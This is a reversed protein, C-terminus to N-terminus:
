ERGGEKQQRAEEDALRDTVDELLEEAAATLKFRDSQNEFLRPSLGRFVALMERAFDMQALLLRINCSTMLGSVQASSVFPQETLDLVRGTLKEGDLLSREGFQNLMRAVLADLKDMVTRVVEVCQLDLIIRRLAEQGQSPTVSRLDVGAAAILFEIAEGMRGAGRSALLSRFCQQPTSFGITEDRYLQRLDKMEEPTAARKNVEEAVNLGARLEPGKARELESKANRMLDRLAAEGEGFANELCDLMAFQHSPDDSGRSLERLLDTVSPRPEAARLMRLMRQLYEAGPMDPLTKEWKQVADVYANAKKRVDGLKRESVDKAEKEEFQFSLEEMSDMLEATPDTEVQVAFGMAVGSEVSPATKQTSAAATDFQTTAITQRLIQAADLAM